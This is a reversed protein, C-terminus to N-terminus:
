IQGLADRAKQFLPLPDREARMGPSFRAVECQELVEMVAATAEPRVQARELEARLQDKTMAHTDINFRDGVFGMVAQALAAHFGRDDRKRLLGEARKLRRKVLATSRSRRAYGRDSLLRERHGRHGIAGAVAGLSLLALLNPWWPPDLSLVALATADPKIYHIDTGLVKLGTAEVLPANPASGSASFTFPGAELTQYSKTQPDFYAMRIPPISYSGDTQPIIPYRLIKTGQVDEGSVRDDDHIEPDLIRLGTVPGIAPKEILRVNGLGAIRVILNIPEGNTSTARDLSASMKFRGVGGTFEKPKGSEPLALVHLTVPKSEIRVNQGGGFFGFLDRASQLVEVNFAMPKVTAEGPSLPFLTVKKLVSVDYARGDITRRQFDFKDADFVKEAWFGEFSPLVAWGGGSIRLRTCVSIELTVPEGVYVTRRSPVASLMLNGEIPVQGRSPGASPPPMPAAQGQAGQVVTIEIPQSQYERGQYTLKCPPITLKGLRKAALGYVFEIAAERKMQGNVISINTSQSSSSGLLSFDALPPLAPTPVSLMNEGRVTLTLQFQEGLGVSTQDVSASFELGPAAEAALPLALAVLMVLHRLRIM